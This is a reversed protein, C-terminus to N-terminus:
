TRLGTEHIIQQAFKQGLGALAQIRDVVLQHPELLIRAVRLDEIVDEAQHVRDLAGAAKQAQRPQFCEGMGALGQHAFEAVAHRHPGLGDRQDQGRDVADLLYKGTEFRGLGLRFAGIFVQDVLQVRHGFAAYMTRFGSGNFGRRRDDFCAACSNTVTCAYIPKGTSVNGEPIPFYLGL